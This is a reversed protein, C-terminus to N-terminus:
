KWRVGRNQRNTRDIINKIIRNIYKEIEMEQNHLSVLKKKLKILYKIEVDTAERAVEEGGIYDPAYKKVFNVDKIM